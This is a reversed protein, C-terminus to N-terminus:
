PCSMPASTESNLSSALIYGIGCWSGSSDPNEVSPPPQQHETAWDHRVRQLRVSQLVGPKGTRWWRGSDAWVWTWQTSAVWDDWGRDDGEIGARLREWCWPGKWHSHVHLVDTSFSSLVPPSAKVKKQALAVGKQRESGWNGWLYLPPLFMRDPINQLLRSIFHAGPRSSSPEWSVFPIFPRPSLSIRSLAPAGQYRRECSEWGLLWGGRGLGVKERIWGECYPRRNAWLGISRLTPFKRPDDLSDFVWGPGTSWGARHHRFHRKEAM